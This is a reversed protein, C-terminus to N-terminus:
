LLGNFYFVVSVSELSNCALRIIEHDRGTDWDTVASTLLCLVSRRDTSTRWHPDFKCIAKLWIAALPESPFIDVIQLWNLSSRYYLSQIQKYRGVVNLAVWHVQYDSCVYAPHVDCLDKVTLLIVHSACLNVLVIFVTIRMELIRNQGWWCM